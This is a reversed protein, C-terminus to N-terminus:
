RNVPRIPLSQFLKLHLDQHLIKIKSYNVQSFQFNKSCKCLYAFWKKVATITNTAFQKTKLLHSRLKDNKQQTEAQELTRSEKSEKIEFVMSM